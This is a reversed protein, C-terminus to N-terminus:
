HRTKRRIIIMKKKLNKGRKQTLLPVRVDKIDDDAVVVYPIEFASAVKAFTILNGKGGCEIVSIGYRDIDIGLLRGAYPFAFKETAGEVLVFFFFFFM